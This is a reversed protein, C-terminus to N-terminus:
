ATQKHLKRRVLASNHCFVSARELKCRLLFVFSEPQFSRYRCFSLLVFIIDLKGHGDIIKNTLIM